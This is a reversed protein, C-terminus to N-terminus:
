WHLPNVGYYRALEAHLAPHQAALPASQEFFLESAVAFFEAPDTAAYPEILGVEGRSLGMQLASYEAGLM